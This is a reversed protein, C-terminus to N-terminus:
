PSELIAKLRQLNRRARALREERRSWVEVVAGFVAMRFPAVARATTTIRTGEPLDAFEVLSRAAPRDALHMSISREPEVEEVVSVMTLSGTLMQPGRVGPQYRQTVTVESGRSLPGAPRAAASLMDEQYAPWNAPEAMFSYVRARPAAIEVTSALSSSRMRRPIWLLIWGANVCLNAIAWGPQWLALMDSIALVLGGYAVVAGNSLVELNSFTLSSRRASMWALMWVGVVIGGVTPIFALWLLPGPDPTPGPVMAYAALGAAPFALLLGVVVVMTPRPYRLLGVLAALILVAALLAAALQWIPLGAM